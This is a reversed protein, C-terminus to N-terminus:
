GQARPEIDFFIEMPIRGNKLVLAKLKLPGNRCNTVNRMNEGTANISWVHRMHRMWVHTSNKKKLTWLLRNQWPWSTITSDRLSGDGFITSPLTFIRYGSASLMKTPPGWDGKLTRSRLVPPQHFSNRCASLVFEICSKTDFVMQMAWCWTNTSIVVKIPRSTSLVKCKSDHKENCESTSTIRWSKWNGSEWPKWCWKAFKSKHRPAKFGQIVLGYNTSWSKIM